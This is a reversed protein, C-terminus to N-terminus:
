PLLSSWNLILLRDFGVALGFRGDRIPLNSRLSPNLTKVRRQLNFHM